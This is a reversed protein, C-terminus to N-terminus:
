NTKGWHAPFLNNDRETALEVYTVPTGDRYATGIIMMGGHDTMAPYYNSIIESGVERQIRAVLSSTQHRYHEVISEDLVVELPVTEQKLDNVQKQM